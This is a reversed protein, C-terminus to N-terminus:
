PLRQHVFASQGVAACAQLHPLDVPRKKLGLCGLGAGFAGSSVLVVKRNTGRLRVLQDALAQMRQRDLAGAADALVNTGVKVVITTAREILEQRSADAM